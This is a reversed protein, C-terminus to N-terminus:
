QTSEKLKHFALCTLFANFDNRDEYPKFRYPTDERLRLAGRWQIKEPRENAADDAAAYAATQFGITKGTLFSRKVDIIGHGKFKSKTLVCRLDLTGAYRYMPHFVRKEAAILEFGTEAVFQKWFALVPRMWEPLNAEDLTGKCHLEVMKHVAVGKQRATELTEAPVMSYDVLPALARTVNPVPSGNWFYRHAAEDFTLM